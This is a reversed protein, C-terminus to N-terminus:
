VQGDQGVEQAKLSECVLASVGRITTPQLAFSLCGSLQTREEYFEILM